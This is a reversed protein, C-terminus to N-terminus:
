KQFSWIFALVFDVFNNEVLGKVAEFHHSVRIAPGCSVMFLGRWGGRAGPTLDCWPTNGNATRNVTKDSRAADSSLTMSKIFDHGLYAMLIETITTNTGGSHGGTHQLMGTYEDSHTDVVLFTNPPFGAKINRNIFEVGPGLKKSESAHAGGRMHLMSTFLNDLFDRFHNEAELIVSKALYDDKLSELSLNILAMPWAMKVKKRRGFGIFAYRLPKDKGDGLRSCMPCRFDGVEVTNLYICGSSRPVFQECVIAGCNVCEHKHPSDTHDGCFHCFTGTTVKTSLSAPASKDVALINTAKFRDSTMSGIDVDGPASRSIGSLIAGVKAKKKPPGAADATRKPPM